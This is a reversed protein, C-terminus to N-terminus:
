RASVAPRGPCRPRKACAAPPSRRRPVAGDPRGRRAGCRGVRVAADAPGGAQVQYHPASHIATFGSSRVDAAAAARRATPRRHGCGRAPPVPSGRRGSAAAWPASAPWKRRPPLATPCRVARGSRAPSSRRSGTLSPPAPSRPSGAPSDPAPGCGPVGTRGHRCAPASTRCGAPGAPRWHRDTAPPHSPISAAHALCTRCPNNCSASNVM